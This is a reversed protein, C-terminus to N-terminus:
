FFKWTQILIQSSSCQSLKKYSYLSGCLGSAFSNEVKRCYVSWSIAGGGMGALILDMGQCAALGAKAWDVAISQGGQKAMQLTITFFNGKELVERMEKSQVIEKVNGKVPWFELGHSNVLVEFNEHTVLRVFNGAEKLGKGLAIYPQVDGQSGLAIIVIRM